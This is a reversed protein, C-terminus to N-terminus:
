NAIIRNDTYEDCRLDYSYIITISNPQLRSKRVVTLLDLDSNRWKPTLKSSVFNIRRDTVFHREHVVGYGSLFKESHQSLSSRLEDNMRWAGSVAASYVPLPFSATVTPLRTGTDIDSCPPPSLFM